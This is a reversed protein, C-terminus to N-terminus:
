TRPLCLHDPLLITSRNQTCGDHSPRARECLSCPGRRPAIEVFFVLFALHLTLLYVQAREVGGSRTRWSRGRMFSVLPSTCAMRCRGLTNCSDELSRPTWGLLRAAADARRLQLSYLQLTTPIRTMLHWYYHSGLNRVWCVPYMYSDLDLIRM